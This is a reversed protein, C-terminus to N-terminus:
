HATSPRRSSQVSVASAYDEGATATSYRRSVAEGVSGYGHSSTPRSSSSSMDEASQSFESFTDDGSAKLETQGLNQVKSSEQEIWDLLDKENCSRSHIFLLSRIQVIEQELEELQAKKVANDAGLYHAKSQLDDIWKKRNQRCKDAAVRNRELFKKRKAEEQEMTMPKKKSKRPKKVKPAENSTMSDDGKKKSSSHRTTKQLPSLADDLPSDIPTIQGYRLSTRRGTDNAMKTTIRAPSATPKVDSDWDNLSPVGLGTSSFLSSDYSTLGHVQPGQSLPNLISEPHTAGLNKDLSPPGTSGLIRDLDDHHESLGQQHRPQYISQSGFQDEPRVSFYDLQGNEGQGQLFLPTFGSHNGAGSQYAETFSFENQEPNWASSFFNPTGLCMNDDINLLPPASTM